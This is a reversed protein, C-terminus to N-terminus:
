KDVPATGGDIFDFQMSDIANKIARDMQTTLTSSLTALAEDMVSKPVASTNTLGSIPVIINGNSDRKVVSNAIAEVNLNQLVVNEGVQGYLQEINENPVIKVAGDLSVVQDALEQLKKDTLEITSDLKENITKESDTARSVETALDQKVQNVQAQVTSVDEGISSISDVTEQLKDLQEEDYHVQHSLNDVSTQVENISVENSEISKKNENAVATVDNIKTELQSEATQARSKETDISRSLETFQKVSNNQTSDFKDNLEEYYHLLHLYSNNLNELYNNIYAIQQATSLIKSDLESDANQLTKISTQLEVTLHDLQDDFDDFRTDTQGTSSDIKNRLEEVADEHTKQNDTLTKRLSAESSTARSKEVDIKDSLSAQTSKLQEIKRTLTSNITTLQEDIQYQLRSLENHLNTDLDQRASTEVFIQDALQKEAAIARSTEASIKQLLDITSDSKKNDELKDVRKDLKSVAITTEQLDVDISKKLAVLNDSVVQLDLILGEISTRNKVGDNGPYAKDATYGLQSKWRVDGSIVNDKVTIKVSDTESGTIPKSHETHAAMNVQGQLVKSPKKIVAM